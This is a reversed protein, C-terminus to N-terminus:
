ECSMRRIETKGNSKRKDGKRRHRFLSWLICFLDLKQARGKICYFVPAFVLPLLRSTERDKRGDKMM